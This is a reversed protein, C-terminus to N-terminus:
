VTRQKMDRLNCLTYYLVGAVSSSYSQNKIWWFDNSVKMNDDTPAPFYQYQAPYICWATVTTTSSDLSVHLSSQARCCTTQSQSVEGTHFVQLFNTSKFQGSNLATKNKM